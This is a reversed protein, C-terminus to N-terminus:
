SDWARGVSSRQSTCDSTIDCLLIYIHLVVTVFGVPSSCSTVRFPATKHDVGRIERVDVQARSNDRPVSSDAPLVSRLDQVLTLLYPQVCAPLQPPVVCRAACGSGCLTRHARATLLLQLKVADIRVEDPSPKPKGACRVLGCGGGTGGVVPFYREKRTPPSDASHPQPQKSGCRHEGQMCMKGEGGGGSACRATGRGRTLYGSAAALRM